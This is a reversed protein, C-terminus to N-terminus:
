SVSQISLTVPKPDPAISQVAGSDASLPPAATFSEGDGQENDPMRVDTEVTRPGQDLLDDELHPDTQPAHEIPGITM